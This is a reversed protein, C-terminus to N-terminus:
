VEEAAGMDEIIKLLAGLNLKLIKFRENPFDAERIKLIERAAAESYASGAVEYHHSDPFESVVFFMDFPGIKIQQMFHRVIRDLEAKPLLSTFDM